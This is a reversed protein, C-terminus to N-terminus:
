TGGGKQDHVCILKNALFERMKTRAERQTDGFTRKRTGDPMAVCVEWYARTSHPLLPGVFATHGKRIWATGQRVLRQLNDGNAASM